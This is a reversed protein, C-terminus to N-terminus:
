SNNQIPVIKRKSSNISEINTFLVEHLPTNYKNTFKIEVDLKDGLEAFKGAWIQV